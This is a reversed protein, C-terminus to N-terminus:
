YVSCLSLFSLCLYQFYNLKRPSADITHKIIRHLVTIILGKNNTDIGQHEGPDPVTPKIINSCARTNNTPYHAVVPETQPRYVSINHPLLWCVVISASWWGPCPYRANHLLLASQVPLQLHTSAVVIELWRIQLQTTNDVIWLWEIRSTHHYWCSTTVQNSSTHVHPPRLYKQNGFRWAVKSSFYINMAWAIYWKGGWM